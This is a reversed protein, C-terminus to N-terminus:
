AARELYPGYEGHNPMTYSNTLFQDTESVHWTALQNLAEQETKNAADMMLTTAQQLLPHENEGARLIRRIVLKEAERQATRFQGVIALCRRLELALAARHREQFRNPAPCGVAARLRAWIAQSWRSDGMLGNCVLWV